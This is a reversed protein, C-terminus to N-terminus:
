AQCRCDLSEPLSCSPETSGAWLRDRILDLTLVELRGVRRAMLADLEAM